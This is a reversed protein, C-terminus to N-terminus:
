RASGRKVVCDQLSTPPVSIGTETPNKAVIQRLAIANGNVPIANQCSPVM